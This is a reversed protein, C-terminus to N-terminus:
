LKGFSFFRKLFNLWQCSTAFITKKYSEDIKKDLPFYISIGKAKELHHSAIEKIVAEELNKIGDQITTLIEALQQSCGRKKLDPIDISRADFKGKTSMINAKKVLQKALSQYFSDLDIFFKSSFQLSGRRANQIVKAFEKQEAAFLPNIKEVLTNLNNQIADLKSLEVVSHTCYQTHHKYFEKYGDVIHIALKKIDSPESCAKSTFYSYNWGNALELEESGVSYHAYDKFQWMAELNAMYCADFGVLDVKRGLIQPSTIKQMARTMDENKLYTHNEEDFLIGRNLFYKKTDLEEAMLDIKTEFEKKQFNDNLVCRRLPEGFYPDISGLGHNWFVLCTKKSPYHKNTWDVFDVLRSCCDKANIVNSYNVLKVENKLVQYRWAGKKLPQDWQVIFKTKDSTISNAIARLNKGAYTDLNNRAAMFIMVTLECPEQKEIQQLNETFVVNQQSQLYLFNLFLSKLLWQIKFNM